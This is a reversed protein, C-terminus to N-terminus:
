YPPSALRPRTCHPSEGKKVADMQKLKDLSHLEEKLEHIEGAVSAL